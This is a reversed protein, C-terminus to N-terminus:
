ASTGRVTVRDKLLHPPQSATTGPNGTDARPRQCRQASSTAAATNEVRSREQQTRIRASRRLVTTM